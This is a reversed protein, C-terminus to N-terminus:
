LMGDGDKFWGTLLAKSQVLKGQERLERATQIVKALLLLQAGCRRCDSVPASISCTCVPCNSLGLM